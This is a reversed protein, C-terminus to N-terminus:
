WDMIFIKKKGEPARKTLARSSPKSGSQPSILNYIGGYFNNSYLNTLKPFIKEEECPSIQM